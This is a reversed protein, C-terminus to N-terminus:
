GPPEPPAALCELGKPGKRTPEIQGNRTAAKPPITATLREAAFPDDDPAPQDRLRQLAQHSRLMHVNYAVAAFAAVITERALGVFHHFDRGWDLIARNKMIGYSGEVINRKNWLSCWEHSGVAEGQYLALHRRNFTRTRTQCCRAVPAGDIEVPEGIKTTCHACGGAKGDPGTEHPTVFQRSGNKKVAGNPAWEFRELPKIRAQHAQLDAETFPWKPFRANIADTHSACECMPRGGVFLVEGKRKGKGVSVLAPPEQNTRHLRYVPKAGLEKLPLQWDDIKAASYGPDAAVYGLVPTGAARKPDVSRRAALREIIPTLSQAPHAVAPTLIFTDILAPEFDGSRVVSHLAYGHVSKTVNPRGAWEAGLSWTSPWRSKRKTRRVVKAPKTDVTKQDGLVEELPASSGADGDNGRREVKGAASPPREWSWKMTADASYNGSGPGAGNTSATVLREVFMQLYGARQERLKDEDPHGILDEDWADMTRAISHFCDLLQTYSIQKADGGHVYDIRLDIRSKLPIGALLAELSIAHLNKNTIAQVAFLILATRISFERPRGPRIYSDVILDEVWDCLGPDADIIAAVKRMLQETVVVGALEPDRVAPLARGLQESRRVRAADANAKSSRAQALTPTITPATM